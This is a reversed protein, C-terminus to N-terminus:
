ATWRFINWSKSSACASNGRCTQTAADAPSTAGANVIVVFLSVLIRCITWFFRLESTQTATNCEEGVQLRQLTKGVGWM